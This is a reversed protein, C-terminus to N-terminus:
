FVKYFLKVRLKHVKIYGKEILLKAVGLHYPFLLGAASFSFGPTTVVPREREEAKLPQEWVVGVERWKRVRKWIDMEKKGDGFMVKEESDLRQRM